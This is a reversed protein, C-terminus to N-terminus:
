IRNSEMIKSLGTKTTKTCIGYTSPKLQTILHTSIKDVTRHQLRYHLEGDLWLYLLKRMIGLCILHMYDLPVYTVPKFHPVNLLSCTINPKHYNDDIKQIFDDDSRLPADIQPFCLRTGIYEGETTCKTCSSYGSHGKVGLVFAKAPTDCILAAIRYQINQGNVFIGNTCIETAENVFDQLFKNADVPKENGHYIGIIFVNDYPFVSGLIPWFQQQSSKSLPLGDINVAIKVCSINDINVFTLIEKYFRITWFSLIIRTCSYTDRITKTNKFAITCRIIFKFFLLIEKIEAAISKFCYLKINLLGPLM